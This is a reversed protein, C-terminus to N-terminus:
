PAGNGAQDREPSLEAKLAPVIEARPSITECDFKKNVAACRVVKLGGLFILLAGKGDDEVVFVEPSPDSGGTAPM